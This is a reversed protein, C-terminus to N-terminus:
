VPDTIAHLVAIGRGLCSMWLEYGGPTERVKLDKINSNPLGGWQPVGGPSAPFLEVNTGDFRCLGSELTPYESGYTLWLKGDPTIVLPTVHEGPFPWGENHSWTQYLGTNADIRILTSGTSTFQTWTGTWVIGNHDVALGTFWAGSGPFDSISRSFSTNGDTRLLEYDTLAWITGPLDPDTLIKSGWGTIPLTIWEPVSPDYYRLNFYEGLSWM